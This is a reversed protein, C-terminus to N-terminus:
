VARTDALWWWYNVRETRRQMPVSGFVDIWRNVSSLLNTIGSINRTPRRALLDEFANTVVQPNADTVVSPMSNRLITDPDVFGSATGEGRGRGSTIRTVM